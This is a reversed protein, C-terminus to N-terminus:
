APGRPHLRLYVLVNPGADDRTLWGTGDWRTGEGAEVAAIEVEREGIWFRQGAHGPSLRTSSYSMDGNHSLNLQAETGYMRLQAHLQYELPASKFSVTEIGLTGLWFVQPESPLPGEWEEPCALSWRRVRVPDFRPPAVPELVLLADNVRLQNRQGGLLSTNDLVRGTSDEASLLWSEPLPSRGGPREESPEHSLSLSLGELVVPTGLGVKARGSRRPKQAASRPRPLETPSPAGCGPADGEPPPTAAPSARRQLDVRVAVQPTGTASSWQGDHFVVGPGPEIEAIHADLGLGSLRRGVMSPTIDLGDYYNGRLDSWRWQLRLTKGASREYRAVELSDRDGNLMHVVMASNGLWLSAFDGKPWDTAESRPCTRRLLRLEVTPPTGSEPQPHLEVRYDGVGFTLPAETPVMSRAGWAGDIPEISKDITATVGPRRVVVETTGFNLSRHYELDVNGIRATDGPKMLERGLEDVANLLGPPPPTPNTGVEGCRRATTVAGAVPPPETAPDIAGAIVPASPSDDVTAPATGDSHRTCGPGGLLGLAVM